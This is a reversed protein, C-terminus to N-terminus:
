QDTEDRAGSPTREEGLARPLLDGPNLVHAMSPRTEWLHHVVQIRTHSTDQRRVIVDGVHLFSKTVYDPHSIALALATAGEQVWLKFVCYGAAAGFGRQPM